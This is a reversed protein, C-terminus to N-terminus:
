YKQQMFQQYHQCVLPYFLYTSTAVASLQAKSNNNQLMYSAIQGALTYHLYFIMCPAKSVNQTHTNQLNPELVERNWWNTLLSGSVFYQMVGLDSWM